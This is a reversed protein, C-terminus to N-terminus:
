LEFHFKIICQILSIELYIIRGVDGTCKEVFPFALGFFHCKTHQNLFFIDM